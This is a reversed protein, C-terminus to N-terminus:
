EVTNKSQVKIIRRRIPGINMIGEVWKPYQSIIYLPCGFMLLLLVIGILIGKLKFTELYGAMGIFFTLNGWLVATTVSGWLYSTLLSVRGKEVAIYGTKVLSARIILIITLIISYSLELIGFFIPAIWFGNNDKLYDYRYAAFQICIIVAVVIIALNLVLNCVFNQKEIALMFVSVIIMATLILILLQVKQLSYDFVFNYSNSMTLWIDGQM